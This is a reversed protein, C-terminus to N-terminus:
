LMLLPTDRLEVALAYALGHMALQDEDKTRLVLLDVSNEAVLRQYETLHHGMQIIESVQRTIGRRRLEERCSLIYDGPERLLQRSLAQKATDTDLAPIKSIAALYREFAGQDEIHALFLRGAEPTFRVAYDVLRDDGTLHDTIAMVTDLADPLNASADREPRPLVLVPTETVQTLVDLHSGLSYPWRWAESHLNRYSCILDPREQEVLGLLEGVTTFTSGPADLWAVTDDLCGELLDRIHDRFLHAQYDDLDSVVLVREIDVDSYRYVAKASALFVSEFQDIRTM